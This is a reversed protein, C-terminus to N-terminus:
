YCQNKTYIIRANYICFIVEVLWCRVNLTRIIFKSFLYLSIRQTTLIVHKSYLRHSSHKPRFFLVSCLLPFFQLASNIECKKENHFITVNTVNLLIFHAFLIIFMLCSIDTRFRWLFRLNRMFLLLRNTICYGMKHSQSILSSLANCKTLSRTSHHTMQHVRWHVRPKWPLCPM